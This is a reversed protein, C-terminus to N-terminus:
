RAGGGTRHQARHKTIAKRALKDAAANKKRPIYQVEWSFFRTLEECAEQFLPALDASKVRYEGKIQNVILESDSRVVIRAPHFEEALKLGKILATYEAANNTMHGIYSGREVLIDDDKDTIVIGAGADGPNGSSAGDIYLHLLPCDPNVEVKNFATTKGNREDLDDASKIGMARGLRALFTQAESKSVGAAKLAEYSLHLSVLRLLTEDDTPM